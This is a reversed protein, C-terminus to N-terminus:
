FQPKSCECQDQRERYTLDNMILVDVMAGKPVDGGGAVNLFAGYVHDPIGYAAKMWTTHPYNSGPDYMIAHQGIDPRGFAETAASLGDKWSATKQDNATVPVLDHKLDFAKPHHYYVTAEDVRANHLDQASGAGPANTTTLGGTEHYVVNAAQHVQGQQQETMNLLKAAETQQQQGDLCGWGNCGHGDPDIRVLPNNMVYAYLNLSQPDSLDSYPVAEPPGDDAGTFDPSMFRGMSSAYYRAGFYDNGSESDREKGTYRYRSFCPNAACVASSTM